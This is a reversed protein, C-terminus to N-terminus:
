FLSLVFAALLVIAGWFDTIMAVNERMNRNPRLFHNIGALGLFLGGIFAVPLAWISFVISLVGALGTSVNAFGLEQALVHVRPEDIGLITKATYGPRFIQSLGAVLLRVGVAWFVFWKTAVALFGGIGTTTAMEAGISILPAVVMTLLVIVYYMSDGVTGAM